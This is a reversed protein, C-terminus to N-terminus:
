ESIYDLEDDEDYEYSKMSRVCANIFLMMGVAISVWTAMPNEYFRFLFPASILLIGAVGTFMESVQM